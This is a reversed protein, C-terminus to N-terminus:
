IQGANKLKAIDELAQNMSNALNQLHTLDIAVREIIINNHLLTLIVNHQSVAELLTGTCFKAIAKNMDDSQVSLQQQNNKRATGYYRM